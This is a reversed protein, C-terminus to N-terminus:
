AGRRGSLSLGERWDDQDDKDRVNGDDPEELRVNAARPRGDKDTELDFAVRQGKALTAVGSLANAHVFIDGGTDPAEPRLFGFRKDTSYWQVFGIQM